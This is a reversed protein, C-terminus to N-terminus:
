DLGNRTAFSAAEARSAASTKNLISSVHTTVTRVAIILEEAIERDTKGQAVLRIVEVERQTLGAPLPSGARSAPIEGQLKTLQEILPGMGLSDAQVLAEEILTRAHERDGAEGRELLTGAYYLSVLALQSRFSSRHAFDMASQFHEVAQDLRGTARCVQGLVRDVGVWALWLGQYPLLADYHEEIGSLDETLLKNIVPGTRAMQAAFPTASSYSLVIESGMRAGDLYELSGTIEAVFPIGYSPIAIELGPGHRGNRAMEIMRNLYIEGEVFDGTEYECM